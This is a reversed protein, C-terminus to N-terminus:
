ADSRGAPTRLLRSRRRGRLLALLAAAGLGPSTACGCGGPGPGVAPVSLFDPHAVALAGGETRAFARVRTAGRPLVPAAGSCDASAFTPASGAFAVDYPAAAPAGYVDVLRVEYEACDGASRLAVVELRTGNPRTSFRVDDFDVPATTARDNEFFVGVSIGGSNVRGDNNELAVTRAGDVFVEFSADRTGAGRYVAELLKWEGVPLAGADSYASRFNDVEWVAARVRGQGDFDVEWQGNAFAPDESKIIGVESLGNTAVVRVWFRAARDGTSASATSSLASPYNSQTTDVDIARLGADGRHAAASQARLTNGNVNIVNDWLGDPKLLARSEFDDALTPLQTGPLVCTSELCTLGQPCDHGDGCRLGELPLDVLGCGALALTLLACCRM